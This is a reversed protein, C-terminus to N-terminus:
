DNKELIEHNLKLHLCLLDLINRKVLSSEDDLCALITNIILTSKNPYNNDNIDENIQDELYKM